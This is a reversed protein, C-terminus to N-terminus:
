SVESHRIAKRKLEPRLREIDEIVRLEANVIRIQAILRVVYDAAVTSL